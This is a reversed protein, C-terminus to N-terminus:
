ASGKADIGALARNVAEVPDEHEGCAVPETADHKDFLAFGFLPEDPRTKGKGFMWYHDPFAKEAAAFAEALRASQDAM